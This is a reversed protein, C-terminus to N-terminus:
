FKKTAEGCGALSTTIMAATLLLSLKRLAKM